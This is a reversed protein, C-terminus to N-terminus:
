FTSGFKTGGVLNSTSYIQNKTGVCAQVNVCDGFAADWKQTNIGGGVLHAIM